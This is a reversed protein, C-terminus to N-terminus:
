ESIHHSFSKKKIHKWTRRVSYNTPIIEAFIFYLIIFSTLLQGKKGGGEVEAAVSDEGLLGAAGEV